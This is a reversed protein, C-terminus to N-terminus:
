LLKGSRDMTRVRDNHVNRQLGTGPEVRYVLLRPRPGGSTMVVEMDDTSALVLEQGLPTQSM